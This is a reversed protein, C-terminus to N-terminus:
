RRRRRRSISKRRRRPPQSKVFSDYFIYAGLGLLAYKLWPSTEAAAAEIFTPIEEGAVAQESDPYAPMGIDPLDLSEAATEVTPNAPFSPTTVDEAAQAAARAPKWVNQVWDQLKQWYPSGSGWTQFAWVAAAKIYEYSYSTLPKYRSEDYSRLGVIAEALAQEPIYLKRTVTETKVPTAETVVPTAKTVVKAKAVATPMQVSSVSPLSPVPPVLSVTPTSLSPVSPRKFYFPIGQGLGNQRRIVYM